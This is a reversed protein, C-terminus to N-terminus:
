EDLSLFNKYVITVTNELLISFKVLSIWIYMQALIAIWRGNPNDCVAVTAGFPPSHPFPSGGTGLVFINFLFPINVFYHTIRYM